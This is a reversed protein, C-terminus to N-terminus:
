RPADLAAFCRGVRWGGAMITRRSAARRAEKALTSAVLPAADTGLTWARRVDLHRAEIRPDVRLNRLKRTTDLTDFVIELHESVAFGVVAAQPGTPSV